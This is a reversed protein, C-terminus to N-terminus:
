RDSVCCQSGQRHCVCVCVCVPVQILLPSSLWNSLYPFSGQTTTQKQQSHTHTHTHTPSSSLPSCENHLILHKCFVKRVCVCLCLRVCRGEARERPKHPRYCCQQRMNMQEIQPSLAAENVSNKILWPLLCRRVVEKIERHMYMYTFTHTHARTPTPIIEISWTRKKKRLIHTHTHKTKVCWYNRSWM